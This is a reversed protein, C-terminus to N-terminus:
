SHRPHCIWCGCVADDWKSNMLLAFIIICHDGLYQFMWDAANWNRAPLRMTRVQTAWKLLRRKCWLTDIFVRLTESTEQGFGPLSTTFTHSSFLNNNNHQYLPSIEWWLLACYGQYDPFWVVKVRIALSPVLFLVPGQIYAVSSTCCVKSASHTALAILAKQLVWLASVPHFTIKDVTIIGIMQNCGQIYIM